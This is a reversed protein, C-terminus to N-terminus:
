NFPTSTALTTTVRSTTHLKQEKNIEKSKDGFTVFTNKMRNELEPNFCSQKTNKVPVGTLCLKVTLCGTIKSYFEDIM